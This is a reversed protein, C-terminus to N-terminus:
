LVGKRRLDRVVTWGFLVAAALLLPQAVLMFLVFTYWVAHVFLWLCLLVAVGACVLALRLARV